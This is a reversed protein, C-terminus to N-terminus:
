VNATVHTEYRLVKVDHGARLVDMGTVQCAHAPYRRASENASRPHPLIRDQTKSKM